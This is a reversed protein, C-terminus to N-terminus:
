FVKRMLTSYVLALTRGSIPWFKDRISAHLLNPGAHCLKHHENQFILKTVHHGKPLVTPFKKEFTFKSNTLRGRVRILGDKDLFPNLSLLASKSDVPQGKSLEGYELPNSKLQTIKILKISAFNLEDAELPGLKKPVQTSKCNNM